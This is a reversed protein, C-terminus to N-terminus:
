RVRASFPPEPPDLHNDIGGIGVQWTQEKADDLYLWVFTVPHPEGDSDRPPDKAASAMCQALDGAYNTSFRPRDAVKVMPIAREGQWVTIEDSTIDIGTVTDARILQVDETVLWVVTSAGLDELGMAVSELAVVVKGSCGFFGLVLRGPGCPRERGQGLGTAGHCIM